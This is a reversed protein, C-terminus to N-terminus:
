NPLMLSIIGTLETTDLKSSCPGTANLLTTDDELTDVKTSFPIASISSLWLPSKANPPGCNSVSGKKSLDIEEVSEFVFILATM